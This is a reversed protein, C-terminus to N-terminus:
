YDIECAASDALSPHTFKLTEKLEANEEENVARIYHIRIDMEIKREMEQICYISSNYLLDHRTLWAVTKVTRFLRTESIKESIDVEFPNVAERQFNDKDDM